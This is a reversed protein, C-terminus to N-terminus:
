WGKVRAALAGSLLGTLLWPVQEALYVLAIQLANDTVKAALLPLTVFRVGDGLGAVTVAAWVLHFRSGLPTTGTSKRQPM